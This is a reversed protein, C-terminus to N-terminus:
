LWIINGSIQNEVSILFYLAETLLVNFRFCYDIISALIMIFFDNWVKQCNPQGTSRSRSCKSWQDTWFCLSENRVYLESGFPWKVPCEFMVPIKQGKTGFSFLFFSKEKFLYDSKPMDNWVNLRRRGFVPKNPKEWSLFYAYKSLRCDFRHRIFFSFFFDTTM